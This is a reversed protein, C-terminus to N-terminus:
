RRELEFFSITMRLPAFFGRMQKQMQMQKQKQKQKQMQMQMQMQMQKQKQMQQQLATAIGKKNDDRLPDATATATALRRCWVWFVDDRGFSSVTEDHAACHLSGLM